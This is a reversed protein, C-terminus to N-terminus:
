NFDYNNKINHKLTQEIDQCPGSGNSDDIILDGTSELLLDGSDLCSTVDINQFWEDIKLKLVIDTTSNEVVSIGTPKEFRVDENFKLIITYNRNPNSDYDFKGKVVLTNDFLVDASDVLGEEAKTDDLRVDIRKYTGPLITFAAINPTSIGSMLDIIFPSEISIQNTTDMGSNPDEEPLDFQIHRVNVRAETITFITGSTDSFYFSTDSPQKNLSLKIIPNNDSFLKITFIAQTNDKPETGSDTCAIIGWILLFVVLLKFFHKM